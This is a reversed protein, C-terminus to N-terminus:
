VKFQSDKDHKPNQEEKFKHLESKVQKSQKMKLHEVFSQIRKVYETDKKHTKYALYEEGSKIAQKLNTKSLEELKHAVKFIPVAVSEFGMDSLVQWMPKKKTSVKPEVLEKAVPVEENVIEISSKVNNGVESTMDNLLDEVLSTAAGSHFLIGVDLPEKIGTEKENMEVAEPLVYQPDQGVYLMTGHLVELASHYGCGVLFACTGAARASSFFDTEKSSNGTYASDLGRGALVDWTWLIESPSASMHGALPEQITEVRREHLRASSWKTPVLHGEKEFRGLLEDVDKGCDHIGTRPISEEEVRKREPGKTPGVVEGGGIKRARKTSEDVLHRDESSKGELQLAYDSFSEKLRRHVEKTRVTGTAPASHTTFAGVDGLLAITVARSHGLEPGEHGDEVALLHGELTHRCLEALREPEEVIGKKDIVELFFEQPDLGEPGLLRACLGIVLMDGDKQTKLFDLYGMLGKAALGLEDRLEKSPWYLSARASITQRLALSLTESDDKSSSISPDVHEGVRERPPSRRTPRKTPFSESKDDKM